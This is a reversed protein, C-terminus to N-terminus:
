EVEILFMQYVVPPYCFGDFNFIMKRQCSKDINRNLDNPHGLMCLSDKVYAYMKVAFEKCFLLHWPALTNFFM